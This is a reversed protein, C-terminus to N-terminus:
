DGQLKTKFDDITLNKIDREWLRLVRFGNELLETTRIHDIKKGVPYNHWYDGDCEIVMKLSPIFIDCQYRHPIESIKHHTFFEVSLQKLYEQIKIEIKTDKFVKVQNFRAERIKSKTEESVIKGVFIGKLSNSRKLNSEPSQKKGKWYASLQPNIKRKGQLSLLLHSESIKKNRLVLREQSMWETIPKGRNWSIRNKVSYGGKSCIKLYKEPFKKWSSKGSCSRSCLRQTKHTTNFEKSCFECVKPM